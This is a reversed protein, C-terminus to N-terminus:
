RKRMLPENKLKGKLVAVLFKIMHEGMFKASAEDFAFSAKAKDKTIFGGNPGAFYHHKGQADIVCAAYTKDAM